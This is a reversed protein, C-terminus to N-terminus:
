SQKLECNFMWNVGFKDTLMGFRAGWFMDALPMTVKGGVGLAAFYRDQEANDECDISVSFNNGVTVPSAVMSDSAMLVASGKHLRAHMIRDAFDAPAGPADEGEMLHLDADLADAYFNMAERCNGNFTLYTQMAKM